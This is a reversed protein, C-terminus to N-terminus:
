GFVETKQNEEPEGTKQDFDGTKKFFPWVQRFCSESYAKLQVQIWNINQM